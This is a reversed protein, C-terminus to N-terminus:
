FLVEFIYFAEKLCNGQDMNKLVEQIEYEDLSSNMGYSNKNSSSNASPTNYFRKSNNNSNSAYLNSNGSNALNQANQMLYQQENKNRMANAYGSYDVDVNADGLYPMQPMQPAGSQPRSMNYDDNTRVANLYSHQRVIVNSNNM